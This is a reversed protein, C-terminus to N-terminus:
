RSKILSSFSPRTYSAAYIQEINSHSLMEYLLIKEIRINVFNASAYLLVSPYMHCASDSRWILDINNNYMTMVSSGVM